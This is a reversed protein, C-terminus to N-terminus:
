SFIRCISRGVLRYTSLTREHGQDCKTGFKQGRRGNEAAEHNRKADAEGDRHQGVDGRRHIEMARHRMPRQRERGDSGNTEPEEHPDGGSDLGSLPYGDVALVVGEGVDVTVRM